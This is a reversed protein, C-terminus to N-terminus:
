PVKGFSKKKKKGRGRGGMKRRRGDEWGVRRNEGQEEGKKGGGM